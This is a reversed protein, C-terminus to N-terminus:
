NATSQLAARFEAADAYRAGPDMSLSGDIVSALADPISPDREQIPVVPDQVVQRIAENPRTSFDRILRGTLVHYLTAGMSFVDATPTATRVDIAQEPPMYPLTGMCVDPKTMISGNLGSNELSKAISFDGLKAFYGSGAKPLLINPPKIDRHVIKKVRHAFELGDLAQIAFSVGELLPIRGRRRKMQKAMELGDEVFEMAFWPLGKAEGFDLLEIVHPHQLERVIAIERRFRSRAEPSIDRDPRVIKIAVVRGDRTRMAKLVVGM